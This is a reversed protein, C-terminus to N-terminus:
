TVMLQRPLRIMWRIVTRIVGSDTVFEDGESLVIILLIRIDIVIRPYSSEKIWNLIGSSGVM